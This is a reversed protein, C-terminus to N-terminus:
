QHASSEPMSNESTKVGSTKKGSQKEQGEHVAYITVVHGGSGHRGQSTTVIKKGDPSVALGVAYRPVAVTQLVKWQQLDICSLTSTHNSVAYLRKGDPSLAITRVGRGVRLSSCPVTERPELLADVPIAFVSRRASVYLTAGDPSLVLHRPASIETCVVHPPEEGDLSFVEIGGGSMRAVFLTKGDASFAAGRLCLGCVADRRKGAMRSMDLRKGAVFHAVYSFDFPDDASIDVIGVTNDGWHVVALKKGDPSVALAKPLPGTPMVRAITNTRTDIVAMASPSQAWRDFDRRYYSVWLYRGGHTLVSEVPKGTFCNRCSSDAQPQYTYDFASDEGSFLNAAEAGFHHRVVQLLEHSASDYVVTEGGELSNVYFVSGDQSFQVSKPSNIHTGHLDAIKELVVTPVAAAKCALAFAHLAIIVVAASLAPMTHMPLIKRLVTYQNM